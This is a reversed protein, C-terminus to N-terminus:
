RRTSDDRRGDDREFSRGSVGLSSLTVVIVRDVVSKQGIPKMPRKRV